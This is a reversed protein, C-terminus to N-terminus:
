RPLKFSFAWDVGAITYGDSYGLCHIAASVSPCPDAAAFWTINEQHVDIFIQPRLVRKELRRTM